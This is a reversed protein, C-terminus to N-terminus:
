SKVKPKLEFQCHPDDCAICKTEVCELDANLCRSFGEEFIGCIYSDIPTKSKGYLIKYEVPIPLNESVIILTKRDNDFFKIDFKGLGLAEIVRIGLEQIKVTDVEQIKLVKIYRKLAHSVQYKGIEKLIDDGEGGLREILKERLKLFTKVPLLFNHASIFIILGDEIKLQGTEMLEIFFNNRM